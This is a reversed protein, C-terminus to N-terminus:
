GNSKKRAKLVELHKKADFDVARGSEIGDNIAKRLAVIKNEEDELPLAGVEEDTGMIPQEQMQAVPQATGYAAKRNFRARNACSPVLLLCLSFIFYNKNM